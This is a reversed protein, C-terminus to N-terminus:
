IPPRRALIEPVRSLDRLMREARDDVHKAILYIDALYQETFRHFVPEHHAVRNRLDNVRIAAAELDSRNRLHRPVGKFGPSIRPWITAAYHNGLLFRWFGFSLEAVVKGPREAAKGNMTARGIAIDIDKQARRTFPYQPDVYWREDQSHPALRDHFVNRLLIEAHGTVEFYASSLEANWLYLETTSERAEHYRTLRDASVWRRLLSEKPLYM